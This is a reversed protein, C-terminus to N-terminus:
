NSQSSKYLNVTDIVNKLIGDSSYTASTVADVGYDNFIKYLEDCNPSCNKEYDPKVSLKEVPINDFQAFFAATMKHWWSENQRLTEVCILKGDKSFGTMTVIEHDFGMNSGIFARGSVSGDASLLTYQGKEPQEIRSAKPFMKKLAEEETKSINSPKGPKTDEDTTEDDKKKLLVCISTAGNVLESHSPTSTNFCTYGDPCTSNDGVVCGSISCKGANLVGMAATMKPVCVDAKCNCKSHDDNCESEFCAMSTKDGDTNEDSEKSLSNHSDDVEKGGDSVSSDCGFISFTTFVFLLVLITSKM